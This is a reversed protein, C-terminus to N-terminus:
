EKVVKVVVSESDKVFKLLYVGNSLSSLNIVEDNLDNLEHKSIEQGLYNYVIVNKYNYISNDMNVIGTTPNPFLKM